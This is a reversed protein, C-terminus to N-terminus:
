SSAGFCPWFKTASMRPNVSVMMAVGEYIVMEREREADM